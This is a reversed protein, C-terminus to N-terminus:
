GRLRAIVQELKQGAVAAAIPNSEVAQLAGGPGVLYRGAPGIAHPPRGGAGNELLLLVQQGPRYPPDGAARFCGEGDGLRQITVEAGGRANGKVSDAVRITVNQVPTVIEGGPEGAAAARLPEGAALGTVTGSLIQDAMGRAQDLTEPNNRWEPFANPPLNPDCANPPTGDM